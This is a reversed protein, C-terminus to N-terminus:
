GHHAEALASGRPQPAPSRPRSPRRPCRSCRPSQHLDIAQLVDDEDSPWRAARGRRRRPPRRDLRQKRGAWRPCARTEALQQGRHPWAGECRREVAPTRRGRAETRATIACSCPRLVSRPRATRASPPRASAPLRRWGRATPAAPPWCSTAATPRAPSSSRRCRRRASPSPARALAGAALGLGVRPGGTTARRAAALACLDAALVIAEASREAPLVWLAHDAGVRVRRAGQAEALACCAEILAINEALVEVPGRAALRHPLGLPCLALAIGPTAAAPLM